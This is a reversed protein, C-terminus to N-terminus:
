LLHSYFLLPHTPIMNTNNGNEDLFSPRFNILPIIDWGRKFVYVNGATMILPFEKFSLENGYLSDCIM